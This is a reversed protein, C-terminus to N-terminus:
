AVTAAEPAIYQNALLDAAFALAAPWDKARFIPSQYVLHLDGHVQVEYHYDTLRTLCAESFEYGLVLVHALHQYQGSRRWQYGM